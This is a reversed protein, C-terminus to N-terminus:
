KQETLLGGSRIFDIRNIFKIIMESQSDMTVANIITAYETDGVLKELRSCEKLLSIVAEVHGSQAFAIQKQAESQNEPM